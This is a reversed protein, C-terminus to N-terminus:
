KHIANELSKEEKKTSHESCNFSRCCYVTANHSASLMCPQNDTKNVVGSGPDGNPSRIPLRARKGYNELKIERILAEKERHLGVGIMPITLRYLLVIRGATKQWNTEISSLALPMETTQSPYDIKFLWFFLRKTLQKTQRHSIQKLSPWWTHLHNTLSSALPPILSHENHQLLLSDTGNGIGIPWNDM